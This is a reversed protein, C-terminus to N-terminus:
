ATMGGPFARKYAREHAEIYLEEVRPLVDALAANIAYPGETRSAYEWGAGVWEPFQRAPSGAYKKAAYWGTRRKAGFFATNAGWWKGAASVGIRAVYQTSRGQIAGAFHRQIKTGGAAKVRAASAVFEAVEKNARRKEKALGAQADRLDRVFGDFDKGSIQIFSAATQGGGGLTGEAM